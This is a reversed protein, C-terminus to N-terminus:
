TILMVSGMTHRQTGYNATNADSHWFVHSAAVAQRLSRCVPRLKLSLDRIHLGFLILIFFLHNQIAGAVAVFVVAM